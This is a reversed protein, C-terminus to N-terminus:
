HAGLHATRRAGRQSINFLVSGMRSLSSDTNLFPETQQNHADRITCWCNFAAPARVLNSHSLQVTGM